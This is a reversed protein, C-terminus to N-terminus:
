KKYRKLEEMIKGLRSKRLNETALSVDERKKQNDEKIRKMLKEWIKNPVDDAAVWPGGPNCAYSMHIQRGYPEDVGYIDRVDVFSQEIEATVPNIKKGERKMLKYFEDLLSQKIMFDDLSEKEKNMSNKSKIANVM